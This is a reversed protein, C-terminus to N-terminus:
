HHTNVVHFKGFFVMVEDSDIKIIIIFLNKLVLEEYDKSSFFQFKQMLKLGLKRAFCVHEAM